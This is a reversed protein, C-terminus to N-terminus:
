VKMSHNGGGEYSIIFAAYLSRLKGFIIHQLVKWSYSHCISRCYNTGYNALNIICHGPLTMM